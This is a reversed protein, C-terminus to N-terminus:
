KILIIIYTNSLLKYLECVSWKNIRVEDEHKTVESLSTSQPSEVSQPTTESPKGTPKLLSVKLM